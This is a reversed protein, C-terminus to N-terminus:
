TISLGIVASARVGSGISIRGMPTRLIHIVKQKVQKVLLTHQNTWPKPNKQLRQFLPKFQKELTPYSTQFM